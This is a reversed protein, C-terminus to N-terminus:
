AAADVGDHINMRNGAWAVADLYIDPMISADAGIARFHEEAAGWEATEYAEVGNLIAGAKGAREVLADIVDQSLSIQALVDEMSMSLLADLRSFLGVLFLTESTPLDRHAAGRLEDGAIECMRGRLLASKMLERQAETSASRGSVLLLSLWRYLPDRGLLRLAHSLSDIGRGGFAASNVMRLLKYSLSPDSRFAELIVRDTANIDKLLNLLRIVAVSQTSLDKKTLTEPRFYHFGQFLTFGMEVCKAHVESNEVKEALLVTGYPQLKDVTQRLEEISHALADLKVIHALELLPLYEEGFVFDDMAIRFGRDVLDKCAALVEEDPPVTELLEIVVKAPDLVDGVSELLMEKNFNIFVTRGQALSTLGMGLVADVIVQSSMMSDSTGTAETDDRDDRYLLEYGMVRQKLDFIPQRAVFIDM